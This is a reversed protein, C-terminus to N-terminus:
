FAEPRTPRRSRRPKRALSILWHQFDTTAQALEPTQGQELYQLTLGQIGAIVAIAVSSPALKLEYGHRIADDILRAILQRYGHNLPRLAERLSPDTVSEAALGFYVAHLQPDATIADWLRAFGAPVIDAPRELDGIADEIQALLRDTIRQVVATLLAARSDFYYLILRKDVHAEEAIRQLSSAAYGRTALTRYAADLIAEAQRAGKTTAGAPM